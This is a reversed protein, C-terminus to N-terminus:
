AFENDPDAMNKPLKKIIDAKSLAFNVEFFLSLIEQRIRTPRIPQKLIAMIADTKKTM